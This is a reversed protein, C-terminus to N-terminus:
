VGHFSGCRFGFEGIFLDDCGPEAQAHAGELHVPHAAAARRIELEAVALAGAYEIAEHFDPLPELPM